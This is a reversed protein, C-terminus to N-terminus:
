VFRFSYIDIYSRYDILNPNLAAIGALLLLLVTGSQVRGLTEVSCGVQAAGLCGLTVFSLRRHHADTQGNTATGAIPRLQVVM